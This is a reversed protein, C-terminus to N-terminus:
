PSGRAPSSPGGQEQFGSELGGLAGSTRRAPEQGGRGWSGPEEQYGEPRQEEM